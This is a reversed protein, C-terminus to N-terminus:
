LNKRQPIKKALATPTPKCWEIFETEQLLNECSQVQAMDRPLSCLQRYAVSSIESADYSSPVLLHKIRSVDKLCEQRETDILGCRMLKLSKSCLQQPFPHSNCVM